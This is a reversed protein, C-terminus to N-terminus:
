AAVPALVDRLARRARFLRTRVTQYPVGDLSAIESNTYGQVDHLVITRRLLPTLAQLADDLEAVAERRVVTGEASEAALDSAPTLAAARARTKLADFAVNRTIRNLWPRPDGDTRVTRARLAREFADQVVDEADAPGVLSRARRVLRARSAHLFRDDAIATFSTNL